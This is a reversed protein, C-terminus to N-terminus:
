KVAKKNHKDPIFSDFIICDFTKQAIELEEQSKITWAVNVGGFVSRCIRYSFQNKYKHNYAIFDPKSLFNMLLNSAFFKEYWRKNPFNKFFDTSLQGRIIDPRSKKIIRLILPNFSEVCYKGNYKRLMNLVAYTTKKWNKDSKIEIILPVRGNIIKLVDRFLPISEDSNLLRYKLIEAYNCDCIKKDTGCMRKMSTDHFVVLKGDKTMQVDLEIGFDYEIAKIFAPISNEPYVSNNDFLGRHAIYFSRFPFDINKRKNPTISFLYLGIIVSMFAIVVILEPM